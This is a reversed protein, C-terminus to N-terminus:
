HTFPLTSGSVDNAAWTYRWAYRRMGAGQVDAAAAAPGPLGGLASLGLPMYRVHVAHMGVCVRVKFTQRLLLPDLSAELEEGVNELLVPLGFSVANELTRLYDGDTLKVVQVPTAIIKLSRIQLHFGDSSVAHELTRLYDGDTLKM